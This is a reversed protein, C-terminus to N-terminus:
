YYWGIFFYDILGMLAGLAIGFAIAECATSCFNKESFNKSVNSKMVKLRKLTLSLYLDGVRQLATREVLLGKL